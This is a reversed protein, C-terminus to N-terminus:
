LQCLLEIPKNGDGRNGFHVDAADMLESFAERCGPNSELREEFFGRCIRWGACSSCPTIKHFSKKWQQLAKRYEPHNEIDKLADIGNFIFRGNKLDNASLAFNEDRDVHVYREPNEFYVSRFDISEKPQYQTILYNFPEVTARPVKPYVVFDMLENFEEWPIFEAGFALGCNIGLSSLIQLDTYTETRGAQLFVRLNLESLANKIRIFDMFDGMQPAFIHLPTDKWDDYPELDSLMTNTTLVMCHLKNNEETVRKYHGISEPDETIVVLAEKDFKRILTEDAPCVVIHKM